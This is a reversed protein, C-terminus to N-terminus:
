DYDARQREFNATSSQYQQTLGIDDLVELLM